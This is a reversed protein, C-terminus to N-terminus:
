QNASIKKNKKFYAMLSLLMRLFKRRRTLDRDLWLSKAAM